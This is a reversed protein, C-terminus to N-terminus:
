SALLPLSSHRRLGFAFQDAKRESASTWEAAGLRDVWTADTSTM